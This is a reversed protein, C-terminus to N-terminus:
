ILDIYGLIEPKRMMEGNTWLSPFMQLSIAITHFTGEKRVSSIIHVVDSFMIFVTIKRNDDIGCGYTELRALRDNIENSGKKTCSSEPYEEMM